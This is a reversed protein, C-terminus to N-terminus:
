RPKNSYLKHFEDLVKESGDFEGKDVYYWEDNRDLDTWKVKYQIRGRYRRFNLIDDIKWHEDDEITISRLSESHQESLSDESYSRLLKSSFMSHLHKMSVSLRLHYFISVKVTIQYLDLQKDKLDKCLRTTKVNRSFLWVWDDVEYIVNRRHKNIQVEIILKTKKLQQRGFNLLEKMRIVIDDAKRVELRERTTEYDTTDSDFSMRPHFEKNFYFLIMSTISFINFNDSFKMMSIWKIWDNQMYNCYTRLEREVDQNVRKSQNDIESHYVTFLSATIRLRKCLSKWMTSIFQFDRNSVISSLLDHLRYVNWLMIWVTEEVSIDDDEWHCLVYHREKILRCIITCIVNYGESLLLETIFNMAIDKWRKQSIPLSHHLENISNRPAKSRQCAHCNRIYRRITARHDSWYYFRQVLDIIRRNGLHSTSPQDHVEQLLETHMNESVWLLDKRFLVDDLIKCNKLKTTHFKLKNENMAQRYESCLEDTQNIMRVRQYLNAESEISLVDVRDLTLITQFRDELRQASESVNALFMRILADVKTNMKGSRFIIQFNFKSLINLYNVQRRSLQKNKMFIKLTQHDIFMQILLETCKLELRWHEFCRIIVLLKKDYIHYNIEAFIMSKSYFIMSHLVREDDYQSLIEDKVYNSADTKLIAQRKLDFHRLVSISSVQKKLNDFVQVCIENWVFSTNKRTLQTFPKVLKSFNKIFRRYFNVFRVFDQIEKLNISTIWSVIVTVKSLNIRLDLESVIVRLFVTEEVNFECKRINMQLEAERLWSLVLKVHNRHKKRMKSYILIDDLYVQCFDNLFNWLVDNMYQQFFILENTLEFSLMKYKYAELATIFTIYNKSNFHMQLKNFASIINLRTLHKCSVIKDIIEDILSLSYRNRKFIVNLKQYNVCFRLDENAKLAFLVLFFYLTQSSTIFKKSLNKNLYKKVKLLKVSFM